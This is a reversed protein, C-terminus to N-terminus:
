IYSWTNNETREKWEQYEEELNGEEVELCYEWYMHVDLIDYSSLGEKRCYIDFDEKRDADMCGVLWEVKTM